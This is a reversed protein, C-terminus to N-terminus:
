AARDLLTQAIEIHRPMGIGTYSALAESLLGRAKERDGPRARNILMMAHFRHIEAQELRHPFSEAQRMAIQFHDEATEWQRASAAAIGAVTHTFRFIPWLVVAGMDILERALPYLQAAQAREGLIVLGEILSGLM